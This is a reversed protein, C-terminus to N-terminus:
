RYILIDSYNKHNEQMKLIYIGKEYHSLDIIYMRDKFAGETLIKGDIGIIKFKKLEDNFCKITVLGNTPNPYLKVNLVPNNNVLNSNSGYLVNFTIEVTLEGDSAIVKVPISDTIESLLRASLKDNKIFFIINFAKCDVEYKLENGDPDYFYDSLDEVIVEETVIEKFKYDEIPMKAAPKRNATKITFTLYSTAMEDSATIKIILNGVIGELAKVAFTKNNTIKLEIASNECYATFSLLDDEDKFISNLDEVIIYEVNLDQILYDKISGILYPKLNYGLSDVLFLNGYDDANLYHRNQNEETVYVSGIFNQREVTNTDDADCYAVSFGIEKKAHLKVPTNDMYPIFTDDYIAVAMEWYYINGVNSIKLNIHDNLLIDDIVNGEASIHYAFANHNSRLGGSNNEDIFLELCDYHWYDLTPNPNQADLIDDNIEAIIYLSDETWAAKYKGQFDEKIIQSGYPLWVQNIMCWGVNQWVQDDIKGDVVPALKAKPILYNEGTTVKVKLIEHKVNEGDDASINFLANGIFNIDSKIKITKDNEIIAVFNTDFSTVSYLLNDGELDTFYESIDEIITQFMRTNEYSIEPFKKILVPMGEASQVKILEIGNGTNLNKSYQKNIPDNWHEHVGLSTLPIGDNEPDYITNAPWNDTDAAQHLYDDTGLFHPFPGVEGNIFNGETPHNEDFETFLFDYCVSEIAVPDQSLFLSSPWDNNFPQMRWKIPPHGWNTSGWIGDVLYLITKGGLEKHGMIDVFCRYQGYEGNEALATAEPCPLSSHLHNASGTFPTVSGFHLKSSVSIGSRHHKKLVPINIMYTADIYEQPLYDPETKNDSWFIVKETPQTVTKFGTGNGWYNVNPFADHLKYYFEPNMNINPDGISIDTQKVGAINILQYLIAYCIQPSTNINPLADGYNMLGNLNIKIAIKEGQTYGIKGKGSLYNYHKFLANWADYISTTSTLSQLGESLMENVIEQNTNIDLFWYDDKQNTCNENTADSNHVWSVRGPNIGKGVGIPENPTQANQLSQANIKYNSNYMGFIAFFLGGTIFVAAIAYKSKRFTDKANKILLSLTGLGLIYTIFSSALPAAIRMCPYAARSPKPIVRILFWLTSALGLFLLFLKSNKVKPKKRFLPM